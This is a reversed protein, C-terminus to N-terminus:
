TFYPLPRAGFPSEGHTPPGVVLVGLCGLGKSHGRHGAKAKKAASRLDERLSRADQFLHMSKLLVKVPDPKPAPDPGCSVSIGASGRQRTWSLQWHRVGLILAGPSRGLLWSNSIGAGGAKGM